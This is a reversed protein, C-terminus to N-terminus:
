IIKKYTMVEHLVTTSLGTEAEIINALYPLSLRETEGHDTIILSLGETLANTKPPILYRSTIFLQSGVKQLAEYWIVALGAGWLWKPLATM